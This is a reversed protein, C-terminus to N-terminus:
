DEALRRRRQGNQSWAYHTGDIWTIAPAPNGSFNVRRGPDYIDDITLLRQQASALSAAAVILLGAVAQSFDGAGAGRKASRRAEGFRLSPPFAQVVFSRMTRITRTRISPMVELITM